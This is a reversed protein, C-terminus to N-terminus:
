LLSVDIHQPAMFERLGDEGWEAGLGSLKYGNMPGDPRLPSGGNIQVTGVRLDSAMRICEAREGFIYAKLGLESDNAIAIAEEVTRYTLVVSVPGFLENRAISATNDVGGVLAPNLFWGKPMDPRGGGALIKAGGDVAAQLTNEIRERQASTILPGTVTAPDRPDGVKIKSYADRSLAVFEDLRSEEVLIRTPSGCGQGANRAYRAHLSVAYKNLDVGPMMIAASKGGLELVVGRLGDAAQRMVQRGVNVSGTFSLKDVMDHGTLAQGADVGGAIFNVVGKPIGAEHALAGLAQVSLPALPSSLLVTTCGVSMASAIKTLGILLPYNFATIAGVVGVPRYAVTSVATATNNFGLQRTFDRTGHEAFWRMFAVPTDVHNAKLSIPTGLEAIIIDMLRDRDRDILEAFRLIAAKRVAPDRWVGSDFAERAARVAADVQDISAGRFSASVEETAPNVVVIADGEGPIFEGAIYLDTQFNQNGVAAEEQDLLCM